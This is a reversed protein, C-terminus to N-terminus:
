SSACSLQAGAAAPSRGRSTLALGLLGRTQLCLASLQVLGTRTLKLFLLTPVGRLSGPFMSPNTRLSFAQSPPMVLPHNFWKEQQRKGCTTGLNRGRLLVKNGPVRGQVGVRKGYNGAAGREAPRDWPGNGGGESTCAELFSGEGAPHRQFKHSLRSSFGM